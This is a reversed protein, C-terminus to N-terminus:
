GRLRRGGDTTRTLETEKVPEKQRCTVSVLQLMM